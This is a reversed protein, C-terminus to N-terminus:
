KVTEPGSKISIYHSVCILGMYIKSTGTAVNLLYLPLSLVSKLVDEKVQYIRFIIM